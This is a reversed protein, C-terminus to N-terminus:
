STKTHFANSNAYLFIIYTNPAVFHMLFNLIPLNSFFVPPIRRTSMVFQCQTIECKVCLLDRYQM